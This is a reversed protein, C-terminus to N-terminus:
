KGETGYAEKVMKSGLFSAPNVAVVTPAVMQSIAYSWMTIALKSQAYAESDSLERGEGALAEFSVPAQAASSLNIVRGHKPLLPLLRKTLLYPSITNVAFRVDLGDATRPSSTKFIGANNVIVDLKEHKEAVAGAFTEVEKPNSLDSVYTELKGGVSNLDSAVRELKTPNRGHLLVHHGEALLLKAAEYGIGDTAGTLLIVKM